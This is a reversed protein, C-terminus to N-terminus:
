RNTQARNSGNFHLESTTRFSRSSAHANNTSALHPTAESSNCKCQLSYADSYAFTRCAHPPPYRCRGASLRAREVARIPLAGAVANECKRKAYACRECARATPFHGGNRRPRCAANVCNLQMNCTANSRCRRRHGLSNNNNNTRNKTGYWIIVCGLQSM